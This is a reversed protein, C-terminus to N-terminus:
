GTQVNWNRILTRLTNAHSEYSMEAELYARGNQGMEKLIKRDINAIERIKEVLASTDEPQIQFASKSKELVPDSNELGVIFPKSAKMYDIWKNPSVGFQYISRKLWPNLLVDCQQAYFQVKDSPVREISLYNDCDSVLELGKAKEPGSGVLLFVINSDNRMEEIAEFIVKTAQSVGFSGVYGVVFKGELSRKTLGMSDDEAAVAAIEIREPDYGMPIYYCKNEAGPSIKKVHEAHNYLTSVIIDASAYAKREIWQLFVVFPNNRNFGSLETLTLPYIDRVEVILKCGYLRKLIVGSLFTLQSLSSVMLWEPKEKSKVAYRMFQLEFWFWSWIRKLSFGMGVAPGNLIVQRFDDSYLTDFHGKISPLTRLISSRSFVLTVEIDGQKQLYKSIFYHRLHNSYKPNGAYKSVYWFKM